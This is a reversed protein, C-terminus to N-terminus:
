LVVFLAPADVRWERVWPLLVLSAAALGALLAAYVAFGRPAPERRSSSRLAQLIAVPRASL